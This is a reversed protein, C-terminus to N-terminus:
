NANDYNKDTSVPLGPAQINNISELQSLPGLLSIPILAYISRPESSTLDLVNRERLWALVEETKGENTSINLAVYDDPIESAGSPNDQAEQVKREFEQILDQLRNDEIKPYKPVPEAVPQNCHETVRGTDDQFDLCFTPMPTPEPTADEEQAQGINGAQQEHYEAAPGCALLVPFLLALLGISHFLHIRLQKANRM